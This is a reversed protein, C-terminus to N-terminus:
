GEEESLVLLPQGYEVPDGDMVLMEVLTGAYDSVLEHEVSVAEVSGIKQGKSIQAGPKLQDSARFLGVDKSLILTVDAELVEGADEPPQSSVVPVPPRAKARLTVSVDETELELKHLQHEVLTRALREVWQLETNESSM